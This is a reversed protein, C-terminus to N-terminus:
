EDKYRKVSAGLRTSHVDNAVEVEIHTEITIIVDVGLLQQLQEADVPEAKLDAIWRV